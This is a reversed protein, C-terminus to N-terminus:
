VISIVTFLTTVSIILKRHDIIEGLLRGLDFDETTKQSIQKNNVPSM